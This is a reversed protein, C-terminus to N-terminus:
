GEPKTDDDTEKPGEEVEGKFPRAIYIDYKVGHDYVTVSFLPGLQKHPKRTSSMDIHAPRASLVHSFIELRCEKGIFRVQYVQDILEKGTAFSLSVLM